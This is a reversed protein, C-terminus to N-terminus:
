RLRPPSVGPRRALAWSAGGAVLFAIAIAPTTFPGGAGTAPLIDTPPATTVPAVPFDAPAGRLLGLVDVGIQDLRAFPPTSFFQPAFSLQFEGGSVGLQPANGWTLPEDFPAVEWTTPPQGERRVVRGDPDRVLVWFSGDDGFEVGVGDPGFVRADEGPDCITWSGRLFAEVDQSNNIPVVGFPQGCPGEGIGDPVVSTPEAGSWRYYHFGAMPIGLADPDDHFTATDSFYGSGLLHLQLTVETLPDAPDQGSSEDIQWEGEQHLGLSRILSGDAARYIRFFRGGDTFEFGIDDGEFAIFKRPATECRIWTGVLREQAEPVSAFEVAPTPEPCTEHPPEADASADAVSSPALFLATATAVAITLAKRSPMAHRLM